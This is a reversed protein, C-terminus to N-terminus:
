KAKSLKTAAGASPTRSPLKEENPPAEETSLLYKEIDAIKKVEGRAISQACM